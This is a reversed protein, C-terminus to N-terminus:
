ILENLVSITRGSFAIKGLGKAYRNPYNIATPDDFLTNSRFCKPSAISERLTLM